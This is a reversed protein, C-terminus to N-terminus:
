SPWDVDLMELLEVRVGIYLRDGYRSLRKLMRQLHRRQAAHVQAAKVFAPQTTV